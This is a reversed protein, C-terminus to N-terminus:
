KHGGVHALEGIRVRSWIDSIADSEGSSAIMAARDQRKAVEAKLAAVLTSGIKGCRCDRSGHTCVYLHIESQKVATSNTQAVYGAPDDLIQELQSINSLSVKPLEIRRRRLGSSFITAPYSEGDSTEGQGTTGIDDRWGFNM